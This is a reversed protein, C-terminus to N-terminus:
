NDLESLTKQLKKRETKLQEILNILRPYSPHTCNEKTTPLNTLIVCRSKDVADKPCQSFDEYMVRPRALCKTLANDAKIKDEDLSQLKKNIEDLVEVIKKKKKTNEKTEKAYYKLDEQTAPNLKKSDSPTINIKVSNLSPADSFTINGDKDVTKYITRSFSVASMLLLSVVALVTLIKKIM